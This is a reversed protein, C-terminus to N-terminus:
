STDTITKFNNVRYIVMISIYSFFTHTIYIDAYYRNINDYVELLYIMCLSINYMCGEGNNM